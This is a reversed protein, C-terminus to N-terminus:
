LLMELQSLMLESGKQTVSFVWKGTSKYLSFSQKVLGRTQMVDLTRRVTSYPIKTYDSLMGATVRSEGVVSFVSLAKIILIMRHLM